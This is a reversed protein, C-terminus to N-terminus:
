RTTLWALKAAAVAPAAMAAAGQLDAGAGILHGFDSYDLALNQAIKNVIFRGVGAGVLSPQFESLEHRSLLRLLVDEIERQQLQALQQAVRAYASLDNNFDRGLMRALRRASGAADKAQGDATTMLDDGAEIEGTLRYVDAMTAFFEAAVGCSEGNFWAQRAIASVPTRVIGSYVLEGFRMRTHDDHGQNLIEGDKLVILDTTTSGVDILVSNPAIEAVLAASALWNASAVASANAAGLADAEIWGDYGAFYRVRSTEGFQEQLVEAIALVGHIRDPFVDCLEATMTVAHFVDGTSFDQKLLSMARRLEDLGRWLPSAVQEVNILHGDADLTALKLHAGGVDWGFFYDSTHKNM